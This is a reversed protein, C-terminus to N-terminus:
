RATPTRWHVPPIAEGPGGGPPRGSGRPWQAGERAPADHFTLDEEVGKLERPREILGVNGAEQDATLGQDEEASWPPNLRNLHWAQVFSDANIICIMLIAVFVSEKIAAFAKEACNRQARLSQRSNFLRTIMEAVM